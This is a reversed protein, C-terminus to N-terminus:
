PQLWRVFRAIAAQNGATTGEHGTDPLVLHEFRDAAGGARYAAEAARAAERVGAQPTRPDSDGSIILFPRPSILPLM